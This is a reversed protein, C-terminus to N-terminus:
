VVSIFRELCIYPQVFLMSFCIWCGLRILRGIRRHLERRRERRPTIDRYRLTSNFVLKRAARLPGNEAPFVHDPISGFGTLPISSCRTSSHTSWTQPWKQQIFWLPLVWAVVLQMTWITTFGWAEVRLPRLCPKAWAALASVLAPHSLSRFRIIIGHLSDSAINIERIETWSLKLYIM